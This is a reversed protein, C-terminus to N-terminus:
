EEGKLIMSVVDEITLDTTDILRYGSEAHEKRFGKNLMPIVFELSSYDFRASTRFSNRSLNTTLDSTLSIIQSPGSHNVFSEIYNSHSSHEAIVSFGAAAYIAAAQGTAVHALDFQKRTEESFDGPAPLSLGKVVRLRMLDIDFYISKEFRRALSKAITSKGVGPPGTLFFIAGREVASM